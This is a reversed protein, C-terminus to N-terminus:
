DNWYFTSLILSVDSTYQSRKFYEYVENFITKFINFLVFISYNQNKFLYLM